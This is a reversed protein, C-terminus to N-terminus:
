QKMLLTNIKAVTHRFKLVNLVKEYNPYNSQNYPAAKRSGSLTIKFYAARFINRETHNESKVVWEKDINHTETQM